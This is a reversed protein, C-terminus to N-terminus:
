PRAAKTEEKRFIIFDDVNYKEMHLFCMRLNDNIPLFRVDDCEKAVRLPLNKVKCFFYKTEDGYGIPVEGNIQAMVSSRNIQTYFSDYIRNDLYDAINLKMEDTIQNMIKAVLDNPIEYLGIDKHIFKAITDALESILNPLGTTKLKAIINDLPIIQKIEEIAEADDKEQKEIRSTQGKYYNSLNQRRISEEVCEENISKLGNLIALRIRFKRKADDAYHDLDEIESEIRKIEASYPNDTDDKKFFKDFWSKKKQAQNENAEIIIQELQQELKARQQETKEKLDKLTLEVNSYDGIMNFLRIYEQHLKELRERNAKLERNNELLMNKYIAYQANVDKDEFLSDVTPLQRAKFGGINLGTVVYAQNIAKPTRFYEYPLYCYGKDGFATGWSNRVIFFGEKDTYGCVVMAHNNEEEELEKATPIRLVGNANTLYTDFARASIVVPFGQALASKVDDVNIKVNKAETIKRNEAESYAEESPRENYVDPNYPCLEELCVGNDRIAQIINCFNSGEDKDTENEISRANYYVFAESLDIKKNLIKSLFYEIVSVLSFASCAGQGGQSKIEAFDKRLDVSPPLTQNKPAEYNVDLPTDQCKYPKFVENGIKFGDETIVVNAPYDPNIKSLLNKTADEIEAIKANTATLEKSCRKLKHYADLLNADGDLQELMMEELEWITDDFDTREFDTDSTIDSFLSYLYQQESVNLNFSSINTEIIGKLKEKVEQSFLDNYESQPALGSALSKKYEGILKVEEKLIEQYADKVNEKDVTEEDIVYDDANDCFLTRFIHDAALYLDLIRTQINIAYIPRLGKCHQYVENKKDDAKCDAKDDLAFTDWAYHCIVDYYQVMALSLNACIAVLKTKTLKQSWGSINYNQFVFVNRLTPICGDQTFDARKTIEEINQQMAASCVEKDKNSGLLGCAWAVDYTIGIVNVVFKHGVPLNDIIYDIHKYIGTEYLPVYFVIHMEPDIDREEVIKESYEEEFFEEVDNRDKLTKSANTTIWQLPVGTYLELAFLSLDAARSIKEPRKVEIENDESFDFLLPNIYDASSSGYKKAYECVRLIIDGVLKSFAIQLTYKM